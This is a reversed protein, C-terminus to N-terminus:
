QLRGLHRPRGFQYGCSMCEVYHIELDHSRTKTKTQSSQCKPCYSSEFYPLENSKKLMRDQYTVTKEQVQKKSM